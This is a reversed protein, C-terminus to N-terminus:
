SQSLIWATIEANTMCYPIFDTFGADYVAKSIIMPKIQLDSVTYDSAIRINYIISVSSDVTFAFGNGTDASDVYLNGGTTIRLDVRYTSNGGGTPCGSLFYQGASLTVPIGINANGHQTGSIHIVGNVGTITLSDASVKEITTINILNKAGNMSELLLINTENQKTATTLDANSLAHKEFMQSNEWDAKTCIMFNSITTGVNSYVSFKAVTDVTISFEKVVQSALSFTVAQGTIATGSSNYFNLSGTSTTATSNFSVVYTGQPLTIPTVGIPFDSGSCTGSYVTSLNKFGERNFNLSINTENQQEKATLEVNSLAYPQYATDTTDAIMPKFTLPSQLVIRVNLYVVINASTNNPITAGEGKDQALLTYPSTAMEVNIMYRDNGGGSPTGSLKFGGYINAVNSQLFFASSSPTGTTEVTITNDNNVTYKVNGRTYVNGAWSGQTNIAKLSTLTYDLKNKGTSWNSLINTKNLDIQDLQAQTAFKHTQNTDDAYDTPLKNSANYPTNSKAAIIDLAEIIDDVQGQTPLANQAASDRLNYNNEGVTVNDIDAM